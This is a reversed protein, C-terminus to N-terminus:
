NGNNKEKTITKSKARAEYESVLNLTIDHYKEITDKDRMSLTTNVLTTIKEQQSKNLATHNKNKTLNSVM